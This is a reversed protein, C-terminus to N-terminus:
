PVRIGYVRIERQNTDEPCIFYIWLDSEGEEKTWLPLEIRKKGYLTDYIEALEFGKDPIAIFTKEEYEGYEQIARMVDDFLNNDFEDSQCTQLEYFRSRDKDIISNIIQKIIDKYLLIYNTILM